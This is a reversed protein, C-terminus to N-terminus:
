GQHIFSEIIAVANLTPTEPQLLKAPALIFGGDKGMVRCLRQIEERIEEPTGFPITSQSGLCGWFTIKDGWKEKLVYPNMGSAEPQVSELVDLGIEIIDEMIDAVSGCCHSMAYKGQRHVEKYIRAWYPKILHRWRPPGLIVGRQEGWDDGFCFADAPVDACARIMEIYLETLREMLEMYFDPAEIADMLANEFGRIRWTQEFLGWGMGIVHFSESDERIREIAKQKNKLIPEVFQDVSPFEYNKFSRDPMPPQELHWPRRDIRWIGGFGDRLRIDSIKKEQLTDVGLYTAMYETLSQRWHNGGYYTDLQHAVEEECSFTYPVPNTGKHQIQSLIFDRRKM